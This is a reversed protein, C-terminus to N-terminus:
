FFIKEEYKLILSIKTKVQSKVYKQLWARFRLNRPYTFITGVQLRKHVSYVPTLFSISNHLQYMDSPLYLNATPWLHFFLFHSSIKVLIWWFMIRFVFYFYIYSKRKIICTILQFFIVCYTFTGSCHYSHDSNVTKFIRKPFRWISNISLHM